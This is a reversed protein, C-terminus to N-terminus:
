DYEHSCVFIFMKNLRFSALTHKKKKKKLNSTNTGTKSERKKKKKPDQAGRKGQSRYEEGAQM